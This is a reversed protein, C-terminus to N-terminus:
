RKKKTKGIFVKIIENTKKERECNWMKIKIWTLAM